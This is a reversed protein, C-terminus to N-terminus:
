MDFEASTLFWRQMDFLEKAADGLVSSNAFALIQLDEPRRLFGFARLRDGLLPAGLYSLGVTAARFNPSRMRRLFEILLRDLTQPSDYLVDAIEVASDQRVQFVIYGALDDQATGLWFVQYQSADCQQFRWNLFDSTRETAIPFQVAAREWLRDFRSDFTCDIGVAM